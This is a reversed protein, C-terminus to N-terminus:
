KQIKLNPTTDSTERVDEEDSYVSLTDEEDAQQDVSLQSDLSYMHDVHRRWQCGSKVQIVYSLPGKKQVIVGPMWKSGAGFNQAMVRDGVEFKRAKAHQNHHRTQVDQQLAVSDECVPKLLSLRTRLDRGLFLSAPTRQTTAHSTSRYRLLFNDLRKQPSVGCQAGAKMAQKFTRIFREALGNSSPHYPACRIHKVGNGQLFETFEASTFQPGNDSVLQLPLGFTAFVHRLLTITNQSTTNSRMDYVEPWKSHADVIVLYTTGQFPGAMDIHIRQWPKPPWAWPYLPAVAPAHRISLCPHCGKVLQEINKDINPWWAFSCALSKMRSMGSHSSHLERLVASQLKEPVVVRIGWLICDGEVTLEAQRNHFPELTKPVQRPWGNKTYELVKSLIPDSRTAQRVQVSAINFITDAETEQLESPLPLRSLGDANGHAATPKFEMDYTYASLLIAWRQLRAAALSPVGKKPGLIAMLPKHDTLLTFRRGYLYQHFKKIGFVLSAAEKELQAYNREAPSLTRSAFAIPRETGDPFRHSIVAGLGYASADGALVLPYKPNYHVLVRSSSLAQKAAEFTRTCMTDWKWKVEHRLLRHLPQLLTALNPVFKGYYNLLGLFSRLQQLNQPQPAQLIAIKKGEATHIGEADVRHGLYEVAPQLFQCKELQDLQQGIADKIAFPVPRPKHFKPVANSNLHLSAEHTAVTGLEDRFLAEHKKLLTELKGTTQTEIKGIRRWDLRLQRLWNRGLLSPGSGGVVVLKLQQINEGHQVKVQAEGLVPIKHDTYTKLIVKSPCLTINPLLQKYVDEAMISVEAGTDIEMTVPRGEVRVKCELPAPKCSKEGLNYVHLEEEEEDLTASVTNTQHQQQRASQLM